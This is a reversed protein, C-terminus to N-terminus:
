RAVGTSMPSPNSAVLKRLARMEEFQRTVDRMVAAIGTMEGAEEHFPVITFEVSIRAGGKRIAPVALVSDAQYHSKGTLMTKNFGDWHRKRLSEPIILDLSQELAEAQTYGFIREAGGNWFRIRGQADAYIVADAMSKVLVSSFRVVDFDM